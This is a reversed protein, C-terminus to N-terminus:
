RAPRSLGCATIQAPGGHLRDHGEALDRCSNIVKIALDSVTLMKVSVIITNDSGPM